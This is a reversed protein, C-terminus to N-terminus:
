VEKKEENVGKENGRLLIKTRIIIKKEKKFTKQKRTEEDGIVM